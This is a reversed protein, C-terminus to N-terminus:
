SPVTALDVTSDAPRRASEVAAASRRSVALSFAPPVFYFSVVTSLLVGGAIAMAFPPWFGGGALILPLFGGFTTITTSFIHRSSDMVTERIAGPDGAAALPKAQLATMIIIAANISVGISGIVGILAQIGFPYDFIALALLSLGMSLIAVAGAILSLRYSNFTLVISAIMLAVILGIPGLLNNVTEARADSDGGYEIRYGPPLDLPQVELIQQLEALAEEPLVGLQLYAQVTVVREGNRRDIPSESPVLRAEGLASLPLGPYVGEQVLSRANPPLLDLTRIATIDERGVDGVRVRVPLEEPGEVLSGGTRGTTLGDLQDAADALTLGAMRLKDEDFDFVLKPAASELSTKTHTVEPISAMLLRMGAAAEKLVPLEPGVVRVEVPAAVPPGQVLHRVISQAEPLERDLVAQLDPVLTKTLREDATTVLAEAFSPVGDQNMMMNYYFSPASEGMVWTVAKIEDRDRLIRDADAVLRESSALSAGDPLKLQVYFQDREVGPFFQATLVPFAGFGIVPLILAALIALGRYRLSLDLSAAFLRGIWGPNVGNRWWSWRGGGEGEPLVLGAIAPTVTLALLFSTILMVIVATAISGVFDGAPGPLVAMPMFAFVTTATSALLPVALRRVAAGVAKERAKRHRIRRAIEDTMVIAADVMLGLAVIMGTVSMQHIPVGLKQLIALSLLATLPLTIAVVFAARWGLTILLVGIVLSVGILLNQGLEGLRKATYASQDFLLQHEIGHPLAAEFDTLAARMRTMWADVQLDSQMRAAILIAPRGEVLAKTARPQEVGRTVSAVDGIRNIAGDPTEILPIARIRDLGDIEGTVEILFDKGAGPVRGAEIKADARRIAAAVDAVTLGLSALRRAEIEVRVEEEAEGFLRVLETGPVGRLRDQLLEAYRNLIAPAVDRGDRGMLASIASFAGTRDNDFEPEPVGAPFNLAADSLADRIESWAQEIEVDTIFSSLEISIVSIGTRSASTIEVITDIERLEEEIKETVLAEVRAPDAGPYPTIVNAFLNTITPDEQRGITLLSTAGIAVIMFIVLGLIRRQRYLLSEMM